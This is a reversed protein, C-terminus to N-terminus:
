LILEFIGFSEILVFCGCIWQSLTMNTITGDWEFVIRYPVRIHVVVM